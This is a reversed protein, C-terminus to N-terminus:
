ERLTRSSGAKCGPKAPARAYFRGSKFGTNGVSWVGKKGRLESTDSAILNDTRPRQVAGKQRYVNVTRGSACKRLKPSVITGEFDGQTGTITVVTNAPVVALAAAAFAAAGLGLVGAALLKRKVCTVM